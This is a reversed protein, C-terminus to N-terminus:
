PQEAIDENISQPINTDQIEKQVLEHVIELARVSKHKLYTKTM